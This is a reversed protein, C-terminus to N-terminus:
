ELEPNAYLYPGKPGWGKEIRYKNLEEALIEMGLLYTPLEFQRRFEEIINKYKMWVQIPADGIYDMFTEVDLLGDRIMLGSVNHGKWISIRKNYNDPNNAVGYRDVFDDFDEWELSM